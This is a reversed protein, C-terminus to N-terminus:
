VAAPCVTHVLFSLSFLKSEWVPLCFDGSKEPDAKVNVWWLLSWLGEIDMGLRLASIKGPVPFSDALPFICLVAQM